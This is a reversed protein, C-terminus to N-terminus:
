RGSVSLEVWTCGLFSRARRATLLQTVLSLSTGEFGQKIEENSSDPNSFWTRAIAVGVKQPLDETHVRLFRCPQVYSVHDGLYLQGAFGNLRDILDWPLAWDSPLPPISYVQLDDAPKIRESTRPVYLHLHVRKIKRIDLMLLDAEYPSVLVLSIQKGELQLRGNGIHIAEVSITRQAHTM